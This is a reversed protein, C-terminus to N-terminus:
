NGMLKIPLILTAPNEEQFAAIVREIEEDTLQGFNRSMLVEGDEGAIEGIVEGSASRRFTVTAKDKGMIPSDYCM